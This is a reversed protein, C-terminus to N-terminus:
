LLLQDADSPLLSSLSVRIWTGTVNYPDEFDLSALPAGIRPLFTARYSDPTAGSFPKTWTPEFVGNSRESFTRLNHGLVVMIAEVKEWDVGQSGDDLFPGWFTKDTYQRLDYVKSTAYPYVPRYETRKRYLVPVGYLCHLKASMQHEAKTGTPGGGDRRAREYLSSACLLSEVNAPRQFLEALFEVNIPQPSKSSTNRLLDAVNEVVHVLNPRKCAEDSDSKTDRRPHFYRSARTV